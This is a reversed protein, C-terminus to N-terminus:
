NSGLTTSKRICYCNNRSLSTWLYLGRSQYIPCYAWIKLMELKGYIPKPIGLDTKMHFHFKRREQVLPPCLRTHINDHQLFLTCRLVWNGEVQPAEKSIIRRWNHFSSEPAQIMSKDWGNGVGWFSFNTAVFISIIKHRRKNKIHFTFHVSKKM